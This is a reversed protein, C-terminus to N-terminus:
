IVVDVALAIARQCTLVAPDRHHPPVEPEPGDSSLVLLGHQAHGVRHAMAFKGPIREIV